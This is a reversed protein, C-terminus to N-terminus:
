ERSNGGCISTLQQTMTEAEDTKHLAICARTLLTQCRWYVDPDHLLLPMQQLAQAYTPM